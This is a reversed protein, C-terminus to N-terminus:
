QSPASATVTNSSDSLNGAIDYAKIWFVDSDLGFPSKVIRSPRAATAIVIGNCYIQYGAVKSNDDSATWALSVSSGKVATIKLGSPATPSQSDKQAAVNLPRSSGSVNGSVDYARVTYTYTKGPFLSKSCYSTKSTTGIKMGNRMVDYGKVAVNDSAPEWTLNVETVAASSAKLGSPSSPATKDPITSVSILNSQSSYNGAKDYAKIYFTYPAGPTLRKYEYYTKSTSSIKKENCYVEYGKVGINDYSGTWSLSITTYTSNTATLEKPASPAKTDYSTFAGVAQCYGSEATGIGCLMFFMILIIVGCRAMLKMIKM